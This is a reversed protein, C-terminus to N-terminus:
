GSSDDAKFVFHRGNPLMKLFPQPPLINAVSQTTSGEADAVSILNEDVVAMLRLFLIGDM